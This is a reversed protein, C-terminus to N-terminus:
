LGECRKELDAAAREAFGLFWAKLARLGEPTLGPEISM